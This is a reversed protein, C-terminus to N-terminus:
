LMVRPYAQAAASAEPRGQPKIISSELDRQAETERHHNAWFKKSIAGYMLSALDPVKGRRPPL